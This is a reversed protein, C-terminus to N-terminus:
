VASRSTSSTCCKSENLVIGSCRLRLQTRFNKLVNAEDVADRVLFYISKKFCFFISMGLRSFEVRKFIKPTNTNYIIHPNGMVLKKSLQDATEDNTKAHGTQFVM